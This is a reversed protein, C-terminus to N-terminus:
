RLKEPVTLRNIGQTLAPGAYIFGTYVQVLAAGADFIAQADAPTMVGGGGMVPLDTQATISRIMRLAPWTLPAGSLGGAQNAIDMESPHVRERSLTTNTAILGSIGNLECVEIAESLQSENLDPSLKLFIPVPNASDLKAAREVLASTLGELHIRGQLSRLGPTNPSSVNVALYDSFPALRDFSFVYDGIADELPVVKTKGISIGMPCGLANRGREAGWQTLLAAVAEAGPNNMGMRNILARSRPLRFCRPKPNGPQAHGTFTGLEAFGFGLRSWVGAARADKDLGAALGVRGPFRVGAVEVPHTPQGVIADALQLAPAPLAALLNIMQDHIIEPDIKFLLPRLVGQYANLLLRVQVEDRTMM